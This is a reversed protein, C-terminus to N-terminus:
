KKRRKKKKKKKKKKKTKKKIVNMRWNGTSVSSLCGVKHAGCPERQTYLNGNWIAGVPPLVLSGSSFFFSVCVSVSVSRFGRERKRERKSWWWWWWIMAAILMGNKWKVKRRFSFLLFINWLLLFSYLVNQNFVVYTHIWRYIARKPSNPPRSPIYLALPGGTIIVVSAFVGVKEGKFVNQREPRRKEASERERHQTHTSTLENARM